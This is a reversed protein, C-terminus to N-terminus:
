CRRAAGCRRRPGPPQSGGARDAPRARAVPRHATAATSTAPARGPGTPPSGSLPTLCQCGRGQGRVPLPGPGPCLGARVASIDVGVLPIGLVTGVWTPGCGGIQRPMAGGPALLGAGHSTHAPWGAVDGASRRRGHLREPQLRAHRGCPDLAAHRDAQRQGDEAPTGPPAVRVLKLGPVRERLQLAKQWIDLVPHPGLAVLIRAGSAELWAAIPNSRGRAASPCASTRRCPRQSSSCTKCPASRITTSSPWTTRGNGAGPRFRIPGHTLKWTTGATRTSV